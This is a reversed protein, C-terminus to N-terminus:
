RSQLESTHEESRTDTGIGAPVAHDFAWQAIGMDLANIHPDGPIEGPVPPPPQLHGADDPLLLAAQARFTRQIFTRTTEFIQDTQLAGSLERAFEYLARSRSERHSAVRAQYRLNATLHGTILGVALMIAFTVLYQLDSVAFSLRPPVFFFDFAVVGVFTAAVSPGRGWRVAVLVVTLM